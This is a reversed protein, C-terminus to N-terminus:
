SHIRFASLSFLPYSRNTVSSSVAVPSILRLGATAQYRWTGLSYIRFRCLDTARCDFSSEIEETFLSCLFDQRCFNKVLDLLIMAEVERDIM